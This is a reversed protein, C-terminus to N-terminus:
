QSSYNKNCMDCKEISIGKMFKKYKSRKRNKIKMSHDTLFNNTKRNCGGANLDWQSAIETPM